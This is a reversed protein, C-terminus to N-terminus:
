EVWRFETHGVGHYFGLVVRVNSLLVVWM